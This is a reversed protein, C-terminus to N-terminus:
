PARFSEIRKVYSEPFGSSRAPGAIRDVYAGDAPRPRMEPRIYCLAPRSRDDLTEALVAEPLYVEGLM